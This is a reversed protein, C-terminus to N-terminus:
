IAGKAVFYAESVKSFQNAGEKEITVSYIGFYSPGTVSFQSIFVDGKSFFGLERLHRSPM